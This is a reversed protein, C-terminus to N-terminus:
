REENELEDYTEDIKEPYSSAHGAGPAGVRSGLDAIRIVLARQDRATAEPDPVLRPRRSTQDEDVFKSSFMLRTETPPRASGWAAPVFPAPSEACENDYRVTLEVVVSTKDLSSSGIGEFDSGKEDNGVVGDLGLGGDSEASAAVTDMVSSSTPLQVLLEEDGVPISTITQSSPSGVGTQRDDLVEGAADGVAGSSGLDEQAKADARAPSTRAITSGRGAATSNDCTENAVQPSPGGLNESLAMGSSGWSDPISGTMGVPLLPAEQMLSPYPAINSNQGLRPGAADFM